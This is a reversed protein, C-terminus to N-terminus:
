LDRIIAEVSDDDFTVLQRRGDPFEKVIADKYRDDGYYIHRGAELHQRAEEGNESALAKTFVAMFRREDAETMTEFQSFDLDAM